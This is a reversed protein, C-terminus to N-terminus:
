KPSESIKESEEVQDLLERSSPLSPRKLIEAAAAIKLDEDCGAVALVRGDQLYMSLFKGGDVDGYIEVADYQAAHGVYQLVTRYQFTWFFPVGTYPADMGAMNHAACRGMQQASRWHEIRIPRMTRWDPFQAIDGAAWVDQTMRMRSDVSISGDRNIPVGRIFDTAPRVGVGIVVRQAALRSGDDLHAVVGDVSQEFRNVKRGMRFTVGNQEHISQFMRGVDPGFGKEFPVADPSVVSVEVNRQRLSAAVEMGIFASGVILAKQVGELNRIQQCDSLTRLLFVGPLNEGEVGLTKPVGGTAVLLRDYSLPQGQRFFVQKGTFSVDTVEHDLMVEISHDRFFEERRLFPQEQDAKALYRKSLETRDYPMESERTVMVIRGSFGDQRLTEAAVLGAAGTGLIVFVRSDGKPDFAAMRPTRAESPLEDPVVVVVDDGVIKAEFVPIDDLTPPELFRGTTVDFISHHWPCRVTQGHLMGEGLPAGHHPCLGGFVYYKGDIRALGLKRGNIEIEKMQGDHLSDRKAVTHEAM